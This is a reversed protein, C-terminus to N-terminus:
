QHADLYAQLIVAAASADVRGKERSPKVGAEHLLREAEVSSYREDWTEVVVSELAVKLADSFALTRKAQPGITGDLSIPVGVVVIGVDEREVIRGVVTLDRSKGKRRITTYPTALLRSDGSIAVGIRRDGVDLGLVRKRMTTLM